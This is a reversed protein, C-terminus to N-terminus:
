SCPFSKRPQKIEEQYYTNRSRLTYEKTDKMEELKNELEQMLGNKEEVDSVKVLIEELYAVADPRDRKFLKGDREGINFIAVM